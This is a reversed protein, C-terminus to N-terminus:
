CMQLGGCTQDPFCSVSSHHNMSIDATNFVDCTVGCDTTPIQWLTEYYLSYYWCYYWRWPHLPTFSVFLLNTNLRHETKIHTHTHAHRDRDTQTHAHARACWCAPSWELQPLQHVTAPGLLDGLLQVGQLEAAEGFMLVVVLVLSGRGGTVGGSRSKEVRTNMLTWLSGTIKSGPEINCMLWIEVEANIRLRQM